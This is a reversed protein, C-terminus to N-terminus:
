QDIHPYFIHAAYHSGDGSWWGNTGLVSVRFQNGNITLQYKDNEVWEHWGDYSISDPLSVATAYSTNSPAASLTVAIQLDVLKWGKLQVFRYVSKPSSDSGLQKFGNQFVLGTSTFDTWQLSSVVGDVNQLETNIANFNNDITEPGQSMGTFIKQINAM